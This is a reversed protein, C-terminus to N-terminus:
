HERFTHGIPQHGHLSCYRILSQLIHSKAIEVIGMGASLMQILYERAKEFMGFLQLKDALNEYVKWYGTYLSNEGDNRMYGVVDEVPYGLLLGMEHPFHGACRLYEEYHRRFVYLLRGLSLDQYGLERFVREVEEKGLYTELRQRDFLLLATKEGTMAVIYYSIGAKKLLMRVQHLEEEGVMLLNAPSLGAILPACQYAIKLEIDKGDIKQIMESLEQHM